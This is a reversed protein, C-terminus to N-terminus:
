FNITLAILCAINIVVIKNRYAFLFRETEMPVLSKDEIKVVCLCLSFM